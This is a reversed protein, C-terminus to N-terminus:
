GRGNQIEVPIDARGGAENRRTLTSPPGAIADIAAARKGAAFPTRKTTGALLRAAVAQENAACPDDRRFL